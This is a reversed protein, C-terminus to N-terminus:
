ELREELASGETAHGETAHDGHPEHDHSTSM